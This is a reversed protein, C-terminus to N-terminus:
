EAVKIYKNYKETLIKDKEILDELSNHLQELSAANEHFKKLHYFINTKLMKVEWFEDEHVNDKM